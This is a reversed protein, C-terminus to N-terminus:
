GSDVRLGSGRMPESQKEQRQEKRDRLRGLIDRLKVRYVLWRSVVM